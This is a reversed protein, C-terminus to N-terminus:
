ETAFFIRGHIMKYHAKADIGSPRSSSLYNERHTIYPAIYDLVFTLRALPPRIIYLSLFLPLIRYFARIIVASQRYAYVVHTRVYRQKAERERVARMVVRRVRPSSLESERSDHGRVPPELSTTLRKRNESGVVCIVHRPQAGHGAILSMGRTLEAGRSFFM